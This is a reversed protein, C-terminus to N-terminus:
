AKVISGDRLPKGVAIRERMSSWDDSFWAEPDEQNVAQDDSLRDSIIVDEYDIFSNGVTEYFVRAVPRSNTSATPLAVALRNSRLRLLKGPPFVGISRMFRFLLNRDFQGISGEMETIAEAPSKGKKYPRNSTIADYVDCIAAMRAAPTVSEGQLGFPYGSGDPREHHHLCVDLAVPPLSPEAALVAHGLEPHLRIQAKEAEDLDDAKCLIADDISLKGVDHLLGALGFNRIADPTANTERALIIMLACVAVSHTYTYDDKAKLRTISVFASSNHELADAITRVVDLVQPVAVSRGLRCDEFLDRVVKTSRQALTTARAKDANGFAPPAVGRRPMRRARLSPQAAVPAGVASYRPRVIASFAASGDHAPRVNTGRATDIFVDTGGSRVRKLDDQSAIVFCTRWFSHSLWPGEIRDVYMGIAAEEPKIRKLM